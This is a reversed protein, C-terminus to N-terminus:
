RKSLKDLLGKVAEEIELSCSDYLSQTGGFPDAIDFSPIRKELELLRHREESSLQGGLAQKMQMETYLGELESIDAIVQEDQCAYERLTFTKDVAEPHFHLLNRKHGSTMTLIIDAWNVAEATIARSSGAHGIERRRLTTLAKDSIPLGDITSVGASRVAVTIGRKAASHRLMAEAMPSRCTNGTCVFLIRKM